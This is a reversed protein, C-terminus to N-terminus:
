KKIKEKLTKVKDHSEHVADGLSKVEVGLDERLSQYEEYNENVQAKPKPKKELLEHLDCNLVCYVLGIVIIISVIYKM